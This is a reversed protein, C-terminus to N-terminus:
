GAPCDMIIPRDQTERLGELYERVGRSKLDNECERFLFETDAVNRCQEADRVGCDGVLEPQEFVESEDLIVSVALHRVVREIILVDLVQDADRVSVDGFEVSSLSILARGSSGNRNSTMLM